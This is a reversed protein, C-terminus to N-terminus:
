VEEACPHHEMWHRAIDVGRAIWVRDHDLVYDLFRELGPARGPRGIIRDHIGLMMMKPEGQEGERYLTDFADKMYTFFDDATTFGLHENYRNDNTEFSIPIVLHAKGGVRTWYPLEDGISDRDYLFGGEEVLLRRTNPSPRGTMWGVPRAGTVNRIGEVARRIHEREVDEPVNQYDIWRWGHSVIEHGAEVMAQAAEPNRELGM